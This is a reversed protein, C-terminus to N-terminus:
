DPKTHKVRFPFDFQEQNKEQILVVLLFASISFPPRSCHFFKAPNMERGAAM